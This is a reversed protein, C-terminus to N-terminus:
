QHEACRDRADGALATRYLDAMRRGVQVCELQDLNPKPSSQAAIRARAAALDDASLGDMFHQVWADGTQAQLDLLAGMAPGLIPRAASLAMVAIGSNNLRKHALVVLDCASLMLELRPQEVFGEIFRVRADGAAQTRISAAYRADAARGAIMLMADPERHDSFAQLLEEFGKYPRILGFSFFVFANVPLGLQLRAATRTAEGTLVTRYDPHPVVIHPASTRLSAKLEPVSWSNLHHFVSVRPLFVAWLARELMPYKQDHSGLNHVTYVIPIRRLRFLFVSLMFLLLKVTAKSRSKGMVVADPWHVHFIDFRRFHSSFWDYAAFTVGADSSGAVMLKICPNEDVTLPFSCVKM